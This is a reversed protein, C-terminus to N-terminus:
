FECVRMAEVFEPGNMRYATPSRLGNPVPLVRDIRGDQGALLGCMECTPDSLVYALLAEFQAPSFILM